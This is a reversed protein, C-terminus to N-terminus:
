ETSNERYETPTKGISAKFSKSFYRPDSFGCAYAVEKSAMDTTRLLNCAHKIRAAQVFDKASLNFLEHMKRNLSSRSMNTVEAIEDISLNNDSIHQEMFQHLTNLFRENMSSYGPVLIEPIPLPEAQQQESNTQQDSILLYREQLDLYAELTEARQKRHMRVRVTQVTIAVTILLLLGIKLVWGTKSEWFTPTVTIQLRRTNDQWQGLANTSQVEFTYEGPTIDQILIQSLKTPASWPEDNEGKAYFRTRYLIDNNNRYDLAAFMIGMSRENPALTIRSLEDAAYNPKGELYIASLAIRVPEKEPVLESKNLVLLGDLPALLIRGDGLDIPWAEGMIFPRRDPTQFFSKGFNHISIEVKSKRSEVKVISLASNGQVLLENESWPMIDFIIDSHLGDAETIHEFEFVDAHLDSGKLLNIGGGETGVYLQGNLICMCMVINNSLSTPRNGERQHLRLGRKDIVLLGKTTAALVTNDDTILLRRISMNETGSIQVFADGQQKWLGFGYTAAWITGESDETIEYVNRVYEYRKISHHRPDNDGRLLCGPKCGIWAHSRDRSEYFCYPQDGFSAPSKSMHGDPHMYGILHFASDYVMVQKSSRGSALIAGDHLRLMARVEEDNIRTGRSHVPTAVFIGHDDILWHNGQRDIDDRRINKLHLNGLDTYVEKEKWLNLNHHVQMRELAANEAEQNLAEFRCTKTNFLVVFDEDILCLINNDETLEMKRVRDSPMSLGDSDAAKFAVFRYGDFRNLGNYTAIWIMGTSDQVTCTTHWHSLGDSDDYFRLSYEQASVWFSFVSFQISFVIFLSLIRKMPTTDFIAVFTCFFIWKHLYIALKKM